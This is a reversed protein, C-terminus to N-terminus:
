TGASRASARPLALVRCGDGANEEAPGAAPSATAPGCRPVKGAAGSFEASCCSGRGAYCEGCLAEGEFAYAGFRGCADCNLDPKPRFAYSM